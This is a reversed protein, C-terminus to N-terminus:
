ILARPPLKMEEGPHPLIASEKLNSKTNKNSKHTRIRAQFTITSHLINFAIIYHM